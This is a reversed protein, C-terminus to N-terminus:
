TWSKASLIRAGEFEGGNLLMRTFRIYDSATSSLGGGGIPMFGSPQRSCPKRSWRATPQRRNVTVLRPQKDAPVYYFTDYMKLPMSFTSASTIRSSSAPSRRSWGGLWDTSTSYLWKEGPEFLLPGVPYEEGARPKFDRVTPSPSATASGPPTRSSIACPSPSPPRACTPAPRPTSRSSCWSSPSSRCISRRRITSRLSGQEILQMAAVSTIAKTM